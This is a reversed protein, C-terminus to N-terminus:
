LLGDDEEEVPMKSLRRLFPEQVWWGPLSVSHTLTLRTTSTGRSISHPSTPPLAVSCCGRGRWSRRILVGARQVVVALNDRSKQGGVQMITRALPGRTGRGGWNWGM